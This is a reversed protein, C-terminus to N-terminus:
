IDKITVKTKEKKIQEPIDDFFTKSDHCSRCLSQFPGGLFEKWNSWNPNIHDVVTAVSISKSDRRCMECLPNKRLQSSRINRWAKSNYFKKRFNRRERTFLKNKKNM